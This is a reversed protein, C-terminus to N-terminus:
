TGIPSLYINSLVHNLNGYKWSVRSRTRKEGATRRTRKEGETRRTRKGAAARRTEERGGSEVNERTRNGGRREGRERRGATRREGAARRTRKGGQSPINQENRGTPVFPSLSLLVAAREKPFSRACGAMGGDRRGTTEGDRRGAMGGDWCGTTGGNRLRPTGYTGDKEEGRGGDRRGTKRKGAFLVAPPPFLVATPVTPVRRSCFFTM